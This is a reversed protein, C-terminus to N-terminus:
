TFSFTALRWRMLNSVYVLKVDWVSKSLRKAKWRAFRWGM